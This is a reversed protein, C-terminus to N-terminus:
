LNEMAETIQKEIDYVYEEKGHPGTNKMKGVVLEALGSVGLM